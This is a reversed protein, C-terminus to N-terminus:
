RREPALSDLYSQLIIRAAEADLLRRRSGIARLNEAAECTSYREDQFVVPLESAAALRAGFRRAAAAAEGESGDANLPLGVVIETVEEAQAVRVLDPLDRRAGRRHLVQRAFALRGDDDSAAIGIRVTGLDLALRKVSFTDEWM